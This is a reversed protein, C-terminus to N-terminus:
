FFEWPRAMKPFESELCGLKGGVADEADPLTLISSTPMFQIWLAHIRAVLRNGLKAGEHFREVLLLSM